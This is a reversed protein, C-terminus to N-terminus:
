KYYMNIIETIDKEFKKGRNM